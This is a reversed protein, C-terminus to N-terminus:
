QLAQEYDNLTQLQAENLEKVAKARGLNKVLLSVGNQDIVKKAQEIRIQADTLQKDTFRQVEGLALPESEQWIKGDFWMFGSQSTYCVRQKCNDVFVYTEGTDSYDSPQLNDNPQNYEAPSVYGPQDAM